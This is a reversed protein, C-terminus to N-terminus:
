VSSSIYTLRSIFRSRLFRQLVKTFRIQKQTLHPHASLWDKSFKLETKAELKHRLNIKYLQGVESDWTLFIFMRTLCQFFNNIFNTTTWGSLWTQSKTIGHVTALWAGRDLATEWLKGLNMDVSNIISELGEWGRRRQRWDKEANPDKGTLWIKELSNARQLLHGFYQLEMKLLLGVLSYEPNIEKLISQNSRRETWPVRLLRKELM